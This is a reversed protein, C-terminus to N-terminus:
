LYKDLSDIFRKAWPLKGCITNPNVLELIKFSHKGKDYIRKDKVSCGKISSSLCDGVQKKTLSETVHPPLKDAKFGKGFFSSLAKEDAILWTEMSTAMFHCHDNQVGAPKVWGDGQRLRLHEWPLWEAPDNMQHISQVPIESDVLLFAEENGKKVEACYADYAERRSGRAVISPMRGSFDSDSKELFKKLGKRLERKLLDSDGGGEVYLKV